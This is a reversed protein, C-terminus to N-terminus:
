GDVTQFKSLTPKQPPLLVPSGTSFGESCICTSGVSDVWKYHWTLSEFGPWMAPLWIREDSGGSWM